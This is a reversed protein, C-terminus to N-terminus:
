HFLIWTMITLALMILVALLSAYFGINAKKPEENLFNQEMDPILGKDQLNDDIEWYHIDANNKQNM